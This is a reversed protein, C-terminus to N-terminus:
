AHASTIENGFWLGCDNTQSRSLYVRSIVLQGPQTRTARDRRMTTPWPKHQLYPVVNLQNSIAISLFLRSAAKTVRPHDHLQKDTKHSLFDATCLSACLTTPREDPELQCIINCM